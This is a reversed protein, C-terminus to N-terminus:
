SYVPHHLMFFYVVFDPSLSYFYYTGIWLFLCMFIEVLEAFDRTRSEISNQVKIPSTLVLVIDREIGKGFGSNRGKFLWFWGLWLCFYILFLIVLIPVWIKKFDLNTRVFNLKEAEFTQRHVKYRWTSRELRLATALKLSLRICSPCM